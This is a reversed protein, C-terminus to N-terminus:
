TKKILHVMYFKKFCGCFTDQDIFKAWLYFLIRHTIHIKDDLVVAINENKLSFRTLKVINKFDNQNFEFIHYQYIPRGDTYNYRNIHTKKVFPISMILSKKCIRGIENLLLLPNEVHELTEFLLITDISNKKFPLFQIDARITDLNKSKTYLVIQKSINVSIGDKDLSRLFIGNSDGLDIITSNKDDDGLCELIFKIRDITFSRVIHQSAVEQLESDGYHYKEDEELLIKQHYPSLTSLKKDLVSKANGEFIDFLIEHTDIKFFSAVRQFLEIM